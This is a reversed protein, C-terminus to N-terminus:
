DLPWIKNGHNYARHEKYLIMHGPFTTAQWGPLRKAILKLLERAPMGDSLVKVKAVLHDPHPKPSKPAM